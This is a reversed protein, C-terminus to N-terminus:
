VLPPIGQAFHAVYSRAADFLVKCSRRSGAVLNLVNMLGSYKAASSASVGRTRPLKPHRPCPVEQITSQILDSILEGIIGFFYGILM